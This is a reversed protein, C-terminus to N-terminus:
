AAILREIHSEVDGATKFDGQLCQLVLQALDPNSLKASAIDEWIIKTIWPRSTMKVSDGRYREPLGGDKEERAFGYQEFLQCVKLTEAPDGREVV